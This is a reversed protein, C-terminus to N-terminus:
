NSFIYGNSDVGLEKQRERASDILKKATSTLLVQRDGYETKTHNVVENTLRRLMRQIHIYDPSQIDEYRIACVKGIRLGTQFQFLLALPSLEYVKTRNHFDEWAMPVIQEM